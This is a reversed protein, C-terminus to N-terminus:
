MRLATRRATTGICNEYATRPLLSISEALM